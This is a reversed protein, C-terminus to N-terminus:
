QFPRVATYFYKNPNYHTDFHGYIKVHGCLNQKITKFNLIYHYLFFIVSYSSIRFGIDFKGNQIGITTDARLIPFGDSLSLVALFLYILM